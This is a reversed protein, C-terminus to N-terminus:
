PKPSVGFAARALAAFREDDKKEHAQTWEVLKDLKGGLGEGNVAKHVTELKETVVQATEETKTALKDAVMATETKVEQKDHRAFTRQHWSQLIATVVVLLGVLATVLTPDM